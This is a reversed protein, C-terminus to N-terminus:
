QHEGKNKFVRRFQRKFMDSALTKHQALTKWFLLEAKDPSVEDRMACIIDLTAQVDKDSEKHEQIWTDLMWNGTGSAGSKPRQPKPAPPRAGIPAGNVGGKKHKGEQISRVSKTVLKQRDKARKKCNEETRRYKEVDFDESLLKKNKSM